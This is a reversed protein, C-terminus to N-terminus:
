HIGKYVQLTGGDSSWNFTVDMKTQVRDSIAPVQFRADPIYLTKMRTGTDPDSIRLEIPLAVSTATGAISTSSVNAIQQIKTLLDSPDRPRVVVNGSVDPVDYDQAVYHYNGFEQDNDLTVRRTCEFSQVGTWRKLAPTALTPDWVYVDIDKGRVAAPTVGSVYGSHVSQPYTKAPSVGTGFVVAISPYATNDPTALLTFGTTTDTYDTGWFLRKYAGTTSNFLCVSLAYITNGRESYSVAPNATFSYSTGSTAKLEVRPVGPIYYISDGRLTFTQTANAKNGFRYTMNELYLSPLAIGRIIDFAGWASKFPSIVHLPVSLNPDLLQTNTVSSPTKGLLLAEIETTVDLSEIDFSLDPIDRVIAVSQFNGVEYIKEEPINLNTVGGTQIRDVVFGNADHLVQGAKISM